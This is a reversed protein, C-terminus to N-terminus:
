VRSGEKNCELQPTSNPSLDGGGGMVKVHCIRYRCGEM